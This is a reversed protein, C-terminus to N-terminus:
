FIGFTGLEPLKVDTRGGPSVRSLKEQRYTFLVCYVGNPRCHQRLCNPFTRGFFFRVAFSSKLFTFFLNIKIRCRHTSAPLRLIVIEFNDRLSSIIRPFCLAERSNPPPPHTNSIGKWGRRKRGGRCKM